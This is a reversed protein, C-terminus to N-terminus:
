VNRVIESTFDEPSEVFKNVILNIREKDLYSYVKNIIRKTVETYIDPNNDKLLSLNFSPKKNSKLDEYCTTNILSAQYEGSTEYWKIATEKEERSMMKYHEYAMDFFKALMIDNKLLFSPFVWKKPLPRGTTLFTVISNITCETKFKEFSDMTANNNDTIITLFILINTTEIKEFNHTKFEICKLM